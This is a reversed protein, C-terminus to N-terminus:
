DVQAVDARVLLLTFAQGEEQKKALKNAFGKYEAQFFVRQTKGARGDKVGFAGFFSRSM